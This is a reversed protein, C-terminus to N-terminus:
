PKAAEPKGTSTPATLDRRRRPAMDAASSLAIARAQSPIVRRV